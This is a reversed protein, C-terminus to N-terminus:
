NKEFYKWFRVYYNLVHKKLSNHKIIKNENRNVQTKNHQCQFWYFHLYM